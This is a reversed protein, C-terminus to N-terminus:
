EVKTTCSDIWLILKEMVQDPRFEFSKELCQAHMKIVIDVNEICHLIKRTCAEIDHVPFLYGTQGEVILENNFRWDSAIVPLGAMYSECISIPFGEGYYYTPFLMMYYSSLKDLSDEKFVGRYCVFEEKEKFLQAYHKELGKEIPGWVDLKCYICNFISNVAEIAQIAEDIGKEPMVRSFTSFVYPENYTGLLIKPNVPTRGSFVPMVDIKNRCFEKLEDALANTEPLIYDVFKISYLLYKHKKILSTLWGGVVPYVLKYRYIRKLGAFFPLIVRIGNKNPMIIIVDCSHAINWCEQILKAKENKWNSTDISVVEKYKKKLERLIGRTKSIQGGIIPNNVRYGLYGILGIKKDM